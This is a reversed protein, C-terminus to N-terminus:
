GRSAGGTVFICRDFNVCTIFKTFDSVMKENENKEESEDLSYEVDLKDDDIQM